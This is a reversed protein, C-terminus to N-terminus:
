SDGRKRDSAEAGKLICKKGFRSIVKDVARETAELAQTDETSSFLDIQQNERFDVIGIGILRLCDEQLQDLIHIGHEYIIKSLDTSFPLKLRKSHRSFDPRRYTLVVTSGKVGAKRARRAVDQSLSLLVRKWEDKDRSDTNFTHERSISKAAEGGAVPREDIGRCLYYLGAGNKGFRSALLDLSLQQLDCVTRIGMSHFTELSKKGVGWLKGVGLPALWECIGQQDFPTLTIGDPKKFDSAIKALFKNPAIGISATLKQEKRVADSILRATELPSGFLRESGSMDLFAEDVSIQELQPSFSGLISMIEASASSYADMRPEVFVGQPCRRYAEAIPMASRVGFRRAEYSSASVVGRTGPKAGVIVPRGRYQPFDRQEVSAFFADMDIHFILRKPSNM